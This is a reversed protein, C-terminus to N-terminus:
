DEPQVVGTQLYHNMRTEWHRMFNEYYERTFSDVFTDGEPGLSTHTYTVQATAGTTSAAVQITLRCATVGPTLKIMEVFLNQPEHRTIYWVSNAPLSGTVFACDREAYGSESVVLLPDWGHLWDMERVPCLLPFVKEPAAHLQQMHTHEVRKPKILKM